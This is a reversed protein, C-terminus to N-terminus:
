DPYLSIQRIIDHEEVRTSSFYVIKIIWLVPGNPFFFVSLIQNCVGWRKPSFFILFINGCCLTTKYFNLFDFWPRCKSEYVLVNSRFSFKCPREAFFVSIVNSIMSKLVHVFYYVTTVCCPWYTFTWFVFCLRCKNYNKEFRSFFFYEWLLALFICLCCKIDYGRAHM